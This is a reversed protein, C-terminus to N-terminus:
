CLTIPEWEKCGEAQREKSLYEPPYNPNNCIWAGDPAPASHVCSRCNKAPRAKGFCVDKHDCFKCAHFSLSANPLRPPPAKAFVIDEARKFLMPATHADLLVYEAHIEDTNKNVAMYLAVQTSTKAMYQQMQAYHEYKAAKLGEKQLKLFSKEGHTKFELLVWSDQYPGPIRQAFGDGSGGYHGDAGSIRFQKGNADQQVVTVGIMLLLAIFRGEELHGRNFLRLIRGPFRKITCWRFGLYLERMCARGLLSAGLHSRPGEDKDRYADGIHPLIKGEWARFSAGQDSVLKEEIADLLATAKM